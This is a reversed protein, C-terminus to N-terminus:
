DKLRKLLKKELGVKLERHLPITEPLKGPKQVIVHSGKQRAMYWGRKLFLSLMEKGSM